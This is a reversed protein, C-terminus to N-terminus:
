QVAQIRAILASHQAGFKEWVPKVAEQFAQKNAVENIIVGAEKMKALSVNERAYWLAREEKQAEKAFKMVLAKDDAGL